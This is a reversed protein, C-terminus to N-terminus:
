RKESEEEKGNKRAEDIERSRIGVVCLNRPSWGYEWVVEVWARGVCPQEKLYLWRDVAIVSEVVGASFAMLSWIVALQKKAYGYDQEYRDIM